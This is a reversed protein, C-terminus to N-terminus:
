TFFFNQTMDYLSIAQITFPLFNRHKYNVPNVILYDMLVIVLIFHRAEQIKVFQKNQFCSRKCFIGDDQWFLQIGDESNPRFKSTIEMILEAMEQITDKESVINHNDNNNNNNDTMNNSNKSNNKNTKIKIIKKNNKQRFSRIVHSWIKQCVM